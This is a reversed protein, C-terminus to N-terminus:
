AAESSREAGGGPGVVDTLQYHRMEQIDNVYPRVQSFFTAFEPSTRFGKLHGSESDWELRLIFQTPDESCETLEYSLCHPSEELSKAALRYSELFQERRKADIKYRTYEVVM